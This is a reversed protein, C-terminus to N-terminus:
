VLEIGKWFNEDFGANLLIGDIAHFDSITKAIIYPPVASIVSTNSLEVYLKKLEEVLAKRDESDPLRVDKGEWAEYLARCKEFIAAAPKFMQTDEDDKEKKRVYISDVSSFTNVLGILDKISAADGSLPELFVMFKYLFMADDRTHATIKVQLRGGYLPFMHNFPVGTMICAMYHEVIETSVKVPKKLTKEKCCPCTEFEDKLTDPTIEETEAM